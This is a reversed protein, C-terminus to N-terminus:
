TMKVVTDTKISVLYILIKIKLYFISIFYIECVHKNFMNSGNYVVSRNNIKILDLYLKFIKWQNRENIITIILIM